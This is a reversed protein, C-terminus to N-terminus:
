AQSFARVFAGLPAGGERGCPTEGLKRAESTCGEAKSRGKWEWQAGNWPHSIGRGKCNSGGAKALLREAHLSGSGFITTDKM